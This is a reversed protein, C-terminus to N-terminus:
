SKPIISIIKGISEVIMKNKIKVKELEQNFKSGFKLFFNLSSNYNIGNKVNEDCIRIIKELNPYSYEEISSLNRYSALLYYNIWTLRGIFTKIMSKLRSDNLIKLLESRLFGSLRNYGQKRLWNFQIIAKTNKIREKFYRYNKKKCKNYIYAGHLDNFVRDCKSWLMNLSELNENQYYENFFREIMMIGKIHRSIAGRSIIDKPEIIHYFEFNFDPNIKKIKKKKSTGRRRLYANTWNFIDTYLSYFIDSINLIEKRRPKRGKTIEIKFQNKNSIEHKNRKFLDEIEILDSTSLYNENIDSAQKKHFIWELRILLINKPFFYITITIPKKKYNNFIKNQITNLEFNKLFDESNNEKLFIEKHYNIQYNPAWEFKIKPWFKSGEEYNYFFEQGYEELKGVNTIVKNIINAHKDKYLIKLFENRKKKYQFIQFLDAFCYITYKFDLFQM